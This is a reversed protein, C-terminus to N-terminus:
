EAPLAEAMHESSAHWLMWGLDREEAESIGIAVQNATYSFGQLWPRLVAGGVVRPMGVDLAGGIIQEPHDNPNPLGDFGSPYHSPYVMPSIADVTRSLSEPTQGLAQDDSTYLVIAFIDASVACGLPHLRDRAEQLFEAITAVRGEQDLTEDFEASDTDGDTPFRVYDFQLEDFGLECAEVALDLPYDWANRDTPDMWGYGLNDRWIDGSETHGIALTPRVPARVPDQFAVIRTITYLGHADAVELVEEPDYRDTLAGIAGAEPVESLYQVIGKEDKTDFVLTNVASNDAMRLIADMKAEDGAATGDVRLGRVIFPQMTVEVRGVTGDWETAGPEWATKVAQVTGPVAAVFEFEGLDRSVVEQDGLVVTAGAVGTGDPATVRGSLVVPEMQLWLPGEDPILTVDFAATVYGDVDVVLTAPAEFELHGIGRSDTVASDNPGQIRAGQLPDGLGLVRLEVGSEALVHPALKWASFGLAALTIAIMVMNAVRGVPRRGYRGSGSYLTTLDGPRRAM